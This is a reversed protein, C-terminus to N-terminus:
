NKSWSIAHQATEIRDAEAPENHLSVSGFGNTLFAASAQEV